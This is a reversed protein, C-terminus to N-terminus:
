EVKHLITPIIEGGLSVAVTDGLQIDLAEIFGPNNLTARSVLKDGIYVPELIAIPTIKGSKGVGWEVSLIKTDVSVGEEKLAYAGKPFHSTFGLEEFRKNSNVRYVLGDSPYVDALGTDRVTNFGLRKLLLMDEEYTTHFYPQMSYAFFEISRTKFEELDKLNLAGAAYNRANPVHKPAAIEGSIQLVGEHRLVQPVLKSGKFKSTIDTGEIGNGRTLVRSLEGNVYLISIAAGDMKISYSVDNEGELPNNKKRSAYFKQLSYM